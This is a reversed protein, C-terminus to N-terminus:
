PTQAALIAQTMEEPSAHHRFHALYDGKRDMLYIYSSHDMLYNGPEGGEAKEYFVRYAQAAQAVAEPSGTLGRIAPHFNSLHGALVKPTDREPDITIFVPELGAAQDGLGDLAQSITHLMMQCVDPCSTYGFAVLMLKGRMDQDTVGNGHHDTLAFPGGIDAKGTVGPAPLRDDRLTQTDLFMAAGLVVTTVAIALFTRTGPTM